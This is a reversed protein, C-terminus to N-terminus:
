LVKKSPFSEPIDRTKRLKAAIAAVTTTLDTMSLPFGARAMYLVWTEIRTEEQETLITRKGPKTRMNLNHIVRFMTAIPVGYKRAASRLKRTRRAEDVASKLTEASYTRRKSPVPHKRTLCLSFCWSSQKMITPRFPKRGCNRFLGNKILINLLIQLHVIFFM